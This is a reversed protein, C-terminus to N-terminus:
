DRTRRRHLLALMATLALGVSPEPAVINDVGLSAAILPPPVTLPNPNHIIRMAAVTSLAQASGGIQPTLDDPLIPFTVHTWGGGAPLNAAFTTVAINTPGMAGSDEFLLRITLDTTGLNILDMSIESVGALTYNGAWQASNIAVLRGGPGQSGTATMQMYADGAGAPGGNLSITPSSGGGGGPGSGTTWGQLTGDQFTDIQGFTVALGTSPLMAGLLATFLIRM